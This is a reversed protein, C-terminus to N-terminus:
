KERNPVFNTLYNLCLSTWMQPINKKSWTVHVATRCCVFLVHIENLTVATASLTYTFYPISVAAVTLLDFM